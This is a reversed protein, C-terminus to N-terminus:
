SKLGPARMDVDGRLTRKKHVWLEARLMRASAVSLWMPPPRKLPKEAPLLGRSFWCGLAMPRCVRRLAPMLMSPKRLLLQSSNARGSAGWMSRIMVTQSLAAPSTQGKQGPLGAVAWQPYASGDAPSPVSASFASAKLFVRCAMRRRKSKSTLRGASLSSAM